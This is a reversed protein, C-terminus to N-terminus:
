VCSGSRCRGSLLLHHSSIAVFVESSGGGEHRAKDVELLAAPGARHLGGTSVLDQKLARVQLPLLLAPLRSVHRAVHGPVLCGPCLAPTQLCLSRCAGTRKAQM